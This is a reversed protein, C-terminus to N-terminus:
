FLTHLKFSAFCAAAYDFYNDCFNIGPVYPQGPFDKKLTIISSASIKLAMDVDDGIRTNSRKYERHYFIYAKCAEYFANSSSADWKPRATPVWQIMPLISDGNPQIGLEFLRILETKKKCKFTTSLSKFEPRYKSNCPIIIVPIWAMM